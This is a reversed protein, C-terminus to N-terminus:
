RSLSKRAQQERTTLMAEAFAWGVLRVVIYCFTAIGLTYGALQVMETPRAGNLMDSVSIAMGVLVVVTAFTVGLRHASDQMKSQM